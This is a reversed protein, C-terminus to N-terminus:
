SPHFFISPDSLFVDTSLLGQPASAAALLAPHCSEWIGFGLHWHQHQSGEPTAWPPFVRAVGLTVWAVPLM